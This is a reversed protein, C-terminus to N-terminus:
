QLKKYESELNSLEQPTNFGLLYVYDPVWYANKRKAYKVLDTLYIEKKVNNTDLKPLNAKLFHYNFVYLGTNIEDKAKEQDTADKEEVIKQLYGGQDRIIRGYGFPESISTSRVSMQNEYQIQEDLLSAIHDYTVLPADGSLVVINDDDGAVNELFEVANKVAEGTGPIDSQVVFNINNYKKEFHKLIHSKVQEAQSKVVITISAPEFKEATEVLHNIAPKELIEHLVKHKDSNMRTGEGAALIVFRLDSM